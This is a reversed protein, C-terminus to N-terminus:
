ARTRASTGGSGVRQMATARMTSFHRHCSVIFRGRWPTLSATHLDLAGRDGRDFGGGLERRQQGLVGGLRRDVAHGRRLRAHRLVAIQLRSAHQTGDRRRRFAAREGAEDAHQQRRQRVVADGDRDALAEEDGLRMAGAQRAELQQGGGLPQRALRVRRAQQDARGPAALQELQQGPAAVGLGVPHEELLHRGRLRRKGGHRGARDTLDGPELLRVERAVLDVHRGVMHQVCPEVGAGDEHRGARQEGARQHLDRRQEDDRTLRHHPRAVVLRQVEGPVVDHGGGGAALLGEEGHAVHGQRHDEGGLGSRDVLGLAGEGVLVVTEGRAAIRQQVADM